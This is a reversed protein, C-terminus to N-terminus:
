RTWYRHHDRDGGVGLGERARFVERRQTKQLGGPGVRIATASRVTVGLCKSGRCIEIRTEYAKVRM